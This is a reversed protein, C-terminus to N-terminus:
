DNKQVTDSEGDSQGDAVVDSLKHFEDPSKWTGDSPKYYIEKASSDWLERKIALGVKKLDPDAYEFFRGLDSKPYPKINSYQWTKSKESYFKWMHVYESM